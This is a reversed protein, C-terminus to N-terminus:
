SIHGNGPSASGLSISLSILDEIAYPNVVTSSFTIFIPFTSTEGENLLFSKLGFSVLGVAHTFINILDYYNALKCFLDHMAM